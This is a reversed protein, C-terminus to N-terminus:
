QIAPPVQLVEENFNAKANLVGLDLTFTVAQQAVPAVVAPLVTALPTFALSAPEVTRKKALDLTENVAGLLDDMTWATPQARPSVVLLLAQPAAANPQDYHLALATAQAPQPLTETWEDLWLACQPDTPQYGEPLWQLLSLADAPPTYSADDPWRLGLWYAPEGPVASAALQAPRLALAPEAEPHLISQMLLVKDLHNLPERVAGLSHLWEQLALPQDPYHALLDHAAQASTAQAYTTRAAATPFDFEVDPRFTPGFLAAAQRLRDAVTLPTAAEVPTTAATAAALRARLVPRLALTAAALDAGPALAPLAEAVGHLAAQYFAALPLTGGV